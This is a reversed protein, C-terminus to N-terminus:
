ALFDWERALLPGLHVIPDRSEQSPPAQEPTILARQRSQAPLPHRPQRAPIDLVAFHLFGSDAALKRAEDRSAIYLQWRFHVLRM